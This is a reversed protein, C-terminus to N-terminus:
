NARQCIPQPPEASFYQRLEEANLPRTAIACASAQWATVATSWRMVTTDRSASLLLAGDASFTLSNIWDSHGSIPIGLRRRQAVDWLVIRGDGGATALLSGDPSFAVDMVWNDHGNLAQEERMGSAVQWLIVSRDRSASALLVGDPSFAVAQVADTHGQLPDHLATLDAANWLGVTNDRSASALLSGDPSFTLSQVRNSHLRQSALQMWDQAAGAISWLEITGNNLGFALLNAHIAASFVSDSAELTGLLEGDQWLAVQRDVSVSVLRIGDSALSTVIGSHLVLDGLPEGASNWRHIAFDTADGGAAASSGDSLAAVTELPETLDALLTGLRNQPTRQLLTASHSDTALILGGNLLALDRVPSAALSRFADLVRGDAANWLIITGDQGGSIIQQGDASFAVSNSWNRHSEIAWLAAGREISWLRVSRDASGSVLTRSDPSFALDLVWNSHGSLTRLPELTRSDRIEIMSDAAGSALLAGDPSFTLAYILEGGHATVSQLVDGDVARLAIRGASDATALTQGDPAFVAARAEGNELTITQRIEGSTPEVLIITGDSSAAALLGGDPAYDVSNIRDQQAHLVYLAERTSADWLILEGSRSGTAIQAGDPSVTVARLDDNHGYFYGSLRSLSQLGTLLSNRAEFTDKTALAQLALLMSRDPQDSTFLLASAALERSRSVTANEDARDRESEAVGRALEAEAREVSARYGFFGAILAAISAIVALGSILAIRKRRTREQEEELAVSALLFAREDDSLIIARQDLITRYQALRAGTALFSRDRAAARWREAEEGVRNQLRLAERNQEIWGRLRHWSRIIAEHAIEVTPIRTNMDNDFTLLRYNGFAEITSQYVAADGPLNYIEELTARRRTDIGNEGIKVLRPLLLQAADRQPETLQNYIEDARKALAGSVGGIQQYAPLTLRNEDRREYLESLTYQLLPLAGIEERLDNIITDVLVDEAILNATRAPQLITDRLESPKLPPVLELRERFLDGWGEYQLPRDLFDARMTVILRLRSDDAELATQLIRLFTRRVQEDSVLTFLEEFQDIILLMDGEPPLSRKLLANLDFEDKGLANMFEADARFAVRLLAGELKRIPNSGPIMDAIYVRPMNELNGARLAPMLGARVVSSKGSGSPGVVAMFRDYRHQATLSQKLSAILAERGFFHAADSEQFARLGKFPNFVEPAIAPATSIPEALAPAEEGRLIANVIARFDRAMQLVDAYREDADRRTAQKIPENLQEPLDPRHQQLTPMNGRVHQKLLDLLDSSDYPPKGTLVEYMLIGLSYIDSRPTVESRRIHEPSIYRPSGHVVNFQDEALNLNKEIDRAIGFDTLYANGDQDLLINAPKIDQHVIRNRHAIHLASAIQDLLTAAAELEFAGHEAIQEALNGGRIFRMVLFAGDQDRWYDYLPVIHPHELRAILEAEYEFRQIFAEHNAHLPLIVKIAVERNVIDQKARWVEGFGGAGIKEQLTYSKIKTTM